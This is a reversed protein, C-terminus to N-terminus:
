HNTFRHIQPFQKLSCREETIKRGQMEEKNGGKKKANKREQTEKTM